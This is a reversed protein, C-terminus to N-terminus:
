FIVDWLGLIGVAFIALASIVLLVLFSQGDKVRPDTEVNSLYLTAVAVGMLFLANLIGAIIVLLLPSAALVGLTGWTIPLIIMIIRMWRDRVAMVSWDFAGFVSLTNAVQRGLSPVNALITKFLAVGAGFLFLVGGWQGVTTSFISSIVEMVKTGQPELGQPNLVAAGLMYFAATSITYIVWSVWADLKMVRIWGRARDVWAQSGDNPGSWAAYGKEVVWYTYATIEGAGVGTMGFMSLAVGMAGAAVQFRLGDAIDGASWAFETFQVMFLVVVAFLTVLMVLTTSVNEVLEYRNALHVAIAVVVLIAIWSGISVVSFPDGGIPLLMSFALASASIVGAQGILFQLFMFLVLWAMWGRGLIKPPVDNYGTIAPKGTSISWRALEIQVWVKVFTSVLILWFLMFGVKAGLATATLLEGSGVVAASTIMGPGLFKLMGSLRTPPEQINAQDLVYPDKSADFTTEVQKTTM